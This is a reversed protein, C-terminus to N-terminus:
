DLPSKVGSINKLVHTYIMTTRLSKHGLLEQITRIDYGNSLLYTAFSHRFTHTGVKKNINTKDTAKKVAKQISSPHLHFRIYKNLKKDFIRKDAPFFYQWKFEKNANPYKEALCDPLRIIGYGKKLDEYHLKEILKLHEQLKPILTKPLVTTRDKDGKGRRVTIIGNEFDIDLVRIALAEGLRLGSGFMISIILNISGNTQGIIQIAEEKSLVVPLRVTKTARTVDELWGFEIDLVNKYLYVIACLAQTQTSPSVSRDVALHNLYQEIEKKGLVKPHQKGNYYIFEKIWKTYAEETKKSYRNARLTFRVKDLLKPKATIKLESNHKRLSL